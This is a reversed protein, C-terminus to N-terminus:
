REVLGTSLRFANELYKLAEEKKEYHKCCGGKYIEWPVFERQDDYRSFLEQQANYLQMEKQFDNQDRYEKQLDM